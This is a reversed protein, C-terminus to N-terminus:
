FGLETSAEPLKASKQFTPMERLKHSLLVYGVCIEREKCSESPSTLLIVQEVLASTSLTSGEVIRWFVQVRQAHQEGEGEGSFLHQSPLSGPTRGCKWSM